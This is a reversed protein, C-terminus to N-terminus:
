PRNTAITANPALTLTGAIALTVPSPPPAGVSRARTRDRSAAMAATSVAITTRMMASMTKFGNEQCLHDGIACSTASDVVPWLIPSTRRAQTTQAPMLTSKTSTPTVAVASPGHTEGNALRGSSTRRRAVM